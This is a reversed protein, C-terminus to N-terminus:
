YEEIHKLEQYLMNLPLGMIAYYDGSINTIFRGAGGQIGYAGAKDMPEGTEIYANIEEPTLKMFTVESVSIGRFCKEESVICLGTMVHHTNGSLEELMAYAEERSRPKGLPRGHIAVTTDSGIVVASPHQRLVHRAKQESLRMVETELKKEPDITENIDAPECSFPIGCKELLEKRRPSQSALIVSKM